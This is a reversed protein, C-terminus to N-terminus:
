RLRERVATAFAGIRRLSGFDPEDNALYEEGVDPLLLCLIM